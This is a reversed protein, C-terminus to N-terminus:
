LISAHHAHHTVTVARFLTWAWAEEFSKAKLIYAILTVMFSGVVAVNLLSMCTAFRSDLDVILVHLCKCSSGMM